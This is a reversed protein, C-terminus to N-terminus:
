RTYDDVMERMTGRLKENEVQALQLERRLDGLQREAVPSKERLSSSPKARPNVSAKLAEM